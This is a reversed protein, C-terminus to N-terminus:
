VFKSILFFISRCFGSIRRRKRTQKRIWCYISSQQSISPIKKMEKYMQDINPVLFKYQMDFSVFKQIKCIYKKKKKPMFFTITPPLIKYPRDISFVCLYKKQGLIFLSPKWHLFTLMPKSRQINPVLFRYQM